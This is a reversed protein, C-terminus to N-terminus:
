AAKKTWGYVGPEWVNSDIDSVWIEGNHSVEDGAMYADTAGLPQTWIKVGEETIGIKKYHTADQDPTYTDVPVYDSVFSWLQTENDDNTGWRFVTGAKCAAKKEVLQAWTPFMDAVEMMVSEDTIQAAFLEFVRRAQLAQTLKSSNM